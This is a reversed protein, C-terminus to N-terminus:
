RARKLTWVQRTGVSSGDTTRSRDTHSVLEWGLGGLHDLLTLEDADRTLASDTTRGLFAKLLAGWSPQRTLRTDALYLEHTTESRRSTRVLTAYSWGAGGTAVPEGAAGAPQQVAPLLPVAVLCLAAALVSSRLLPPRM